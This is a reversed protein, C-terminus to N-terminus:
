DQANDKCSFYIALKIVILSTPGGLWRRLGMQLPCTGHDIHALECLAHPVGGKGCSRM